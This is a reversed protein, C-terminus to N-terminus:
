DRHVKRRLPRVRARSPLCGETRILWGTKMTEEILKGM